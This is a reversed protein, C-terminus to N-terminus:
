RVAPSVVDEVAGASGAQVKLFLADQLWEPKFGEIHTTTIFTQMEGTLASMLLAQRSLDLEALVDDLLLVPAENLRETLLKLEALKLSLVLSRQQGQSAFSQASKESLCFDVDDRHPGILTQRRGIEEYRREKMLQMLRAAIEKEECEKLRILPISPEWSGAEDEEAEEKSQPAKFAYQATLKERFGSIHSQYAEAEILLDDLLLVRRKIIQAALDSIQTDWVKLQDNDSVSVKGKEFLTKLLSNRQTLVKQYRQLTEYFHPKLSVAVDDIWERRYRPGGRVLNLDQSRFSVTVLRGLLSKASAQSVGNVKIQKEVTQRHATSDRKTLSLSLTQQQGQTELVLEVLAQKEGALILESEKQARESKGQSLLEIAELFNTKGQANEGILINRGRSLEVNLSKYNRFNTLRLQLLHM